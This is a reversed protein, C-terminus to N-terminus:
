SPCSVSSKGRYVAQLPLLVGSSSVSVALTFARKEDHGAVTVQRSGKPAWTVDSGQSYTVGTQDTNVFLEAPIDEEKIVWGIRLAAKYCIEEWTLPLKRANGTSRRESWELERHLFERVFDDTCRFFFTRGNKFEMEFIEPAYCEFHAIM